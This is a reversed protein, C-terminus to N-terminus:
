AAWCTVSSNLTHKLYWHFGAALEVGTTAAISITGASSGTQVSFCSRGDPLACSAVISLNFKSAAVAHDPLTRRILAAVAATQEEASAGASYGQQTQRLPWTGPPPSLGAAAEGRYRRITSPRGHRVLTCGALLCLVRSLSMSSCCHAMNTVPALYFALGLSQLQAM